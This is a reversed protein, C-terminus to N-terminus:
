EFSCGEVHVIIQLLTFRDPFHLNRVDTRHVLTQDDARRVDIHFGVDGLGAMLQAFCTFSLQLHPYRRPRISNFLAFLNMMGGELETEECLYLAKAMPVISAMTRRWSACVCPPREGGHQ